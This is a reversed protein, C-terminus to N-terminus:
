RVNGIGAGSAARSQRFEGGLSPLGIDEKNRSSSM